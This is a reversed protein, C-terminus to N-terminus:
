LSSEYIARLDLERLSGSYIRVDDMFGQFNRASFGRDRGLDLVGAFAAPEHSLQRVASTVVGNDILTITTSSPTVSMAVFVWTDDPVVVGSDWGWASSGASNWHYGLKNDSIFNLGFTQGAARSFIVGAWSAQDGVRRIWATFTLENTALNLPPLEVSDGANTLDLALGTTPTAGVAGFTAGGLLTGSAGGGDEAATSGVTEDLRWRLSAVPDYQWVEGALVTAGVREDVRWFRTGDGAIVPPVFEADLVNGQFEASSTTAQAVAAYSTGFYVDHSDARVGPVFRLPEDALARLGGDVPFPSEARGGHNMISQVESANLQYGYIRLDDLTGRLGGGNLNIPGVPSAISVPLQGAFSGDVFLRTAFPGGVFALHTWTDLPLSVGFRADTVGYRTVGVEETFPYQAIRLSGNPTEILPANSGVTADRRIWTTVSWSGSRTALPATLSQGMDLRLGGDEIAPEWTVTADATADVETLTVSEAVTGSTEDFPWHAVIERRPNRVVFTAQTQMGSSDVITYDFTDDGLFVDAPPTYAIANFQGALPGPVLSLTAGRASVPDVGALSLVDCNGDADNRLPDLTLTQGSALEAKTTELVDPVSYPPLAIPFEGVTELCGRSDRHAQIVDRTRPGVYLCAGCMNNCPSSDVCHGSGWNHGLEHGVVGSSDFSWGYHFNSCVVSVYALGLYGSLQSAPRGTMLHTIDREVSTMTSEWENRFQGLLDGGSTPTYFPQTRVVLEVIEHTIGVDRAYFLNVEAMIEEVRQVTAEVSSGQRLFFEHDCDYAIQAKELCVRSALNMVEPGVPTGATAAIQIPQADAQAPRLGEHDVGCAGTKWAFREAVRTFSGGIPADFREVSGDGRFLSLRIKNGHRSGVVSLDAYGHVTGYYVNSSPAVVPSLNGNGDSVQVRFNEARVEAPVFSITHVTGDLLVPVPPLDVPASAVVSLLLPLM